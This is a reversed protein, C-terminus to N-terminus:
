ELEKALQETYITGANQLFVIGSKWKARVKRNRNVLLNKKQSEVQLQYLKEIMQKVSTGTNMSTLQETSNLPQCKTKEVQEVIWEVCERCWTQKKETSHICNIQKLIKDLEKKKM